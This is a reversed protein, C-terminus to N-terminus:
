LFAALDPLSLFAALDPLSRMTEHIYSIVGVKAVCIM